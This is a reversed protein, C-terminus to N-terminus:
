WVGFMRLLIVICFCITLMKLRLNVSLYLPDIRMGRTFLPGKTPHSVHCLQLLFKKVWAHHKLELDTSLGLLIAKHSGVWAYGVNSGQYHIRWNKFTGLM